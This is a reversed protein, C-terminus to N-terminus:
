QPPIRLRGPAKGTVGRAAPGLMAVQRRRGGDHFDTLWAYGAVSLLQLRRLCARAPNDNPTGTVPDAAFFRAALLDLPVARNAALHQLVAVDRGTLTILRQRERTNTLTAM